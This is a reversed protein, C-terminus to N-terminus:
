RYLKDCMDKYDRQLVAYSNESSHIQIQLEQNQDELRKKAHKLEMVCEVLNNTESCLFLFMVSFNHVKKILNILL